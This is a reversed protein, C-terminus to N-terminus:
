LATGEAPQSARHGDAGTTPVSFIYIIVDMYIVVGGFEKIM